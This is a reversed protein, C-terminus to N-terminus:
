RPSSHLKLSDITELSKKSEVMKFNVEISKPNSEIAIIDGEQIGQKELELILKRASDIGAHKVGILFSEHEDPMFYVIFISIKLSTGSVNCNLIIRNKKKKTKKQGFKPKYGTRNM